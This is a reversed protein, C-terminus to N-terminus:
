SVRIRRRATEVDTVSGTISCQNSREPQNRNDPFHIHCKTEDRVKRIHAGEKGIVHSHEAFPVDIKLTVRNSKADLDNLVLERARQVSAPPGVVKVQPDQLDFTVDSPYFPCNLTLGHVPTLCFDM